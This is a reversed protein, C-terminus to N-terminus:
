QKEIVVLNDQRRGDPSKVIRCDFETLQEKVTEPRTVDEIIYLCSKKILPIITRATQLQFRENHPGDDVLLDIDPGIDDILKQLNAVRTTSMLITKIRAAKFMTTSDRDVGYVIANPFFDRWMRLSAGVQYHEPTWQMTERSGIGIELVKKVERRKNKLLQYYFPTYSHGLQPCKDTGYKHALRCLPTTKM